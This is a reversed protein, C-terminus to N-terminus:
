LLHDLRTLAVIYQYPIFSEYKKQAPLQNVFLFFNLLLKLFTVFMFYIQSSKLNVIKTKPFQIMPTFLDM